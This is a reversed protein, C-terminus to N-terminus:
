GQLTTTKGVDTDEGPVRLCIHPELSNAPSAENGWGGRIARPKEKRSRLIHVAGQLPKGPEFYHPSNM